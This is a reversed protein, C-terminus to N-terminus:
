SAEIDQQPEVVAEMAAWAHEAGLDLGQEQAKRSRHYALGTGAPILRGVIVNEKLGRLEDRKGMIAAETLVRTTEQFSAASIFSDTSLSAKTIGLLVNEYQAPLKGEAEMRDNEDLVESREVQEERIFRTDGSDTIVVRRLMQRVIVEIHKDNIKVGQLRYVDQVEDIIYRALESIGQLRLIDHPDAPGDVILEGKNVVQGDHVMLHKDKPILFEHATGDPETIVLRQKGKTEKGFSVTGTYEALMGADKPARAEFLEAVRPLGGTIDRTKASEQPIRALVEGVGIQQGDKVTILSGVQFTIAVAHDTGAIKVEEGNEDLLKVQPRVGKASGTTSRRKSDIVVLTSLGTVEDIQKAVTAGEEVNEFKVTGSYETVIPRTHPDWTALQVGAKVAAGDDVLLMAGYPLKHRERERGMDDAVVVEASRAIVVKEGKANSVYRMNGAFRITGGSKAEVGSAAAARSAAGGVHFTRMTLQTGPEGISQAAIVGVAEGANVMSGRGLDRGYCKACLGYRTECTLPTRVKVEDVGLGEILEVASEDLLSGAEIVTEQTDPNVVDEATVRGLIRERLPEVVEGGEILAKMAFGDRTGCDDEIVVLDQTVDVLRRTLYGSNATKLATDALGKRAGHTSIFYQLVNLGERFNTTIPTEIISGDPKAMLGRMGALQRIQAASGRAGSDAMMYISNFSEQRVTKGERNVVEESGLQEMMAKAVQDGCRGWIDVVKNYREGDTVLGSTYQQAIEKVEAEAARILDHKATPVLMDKVAISLGARTALRYGFQMLQDAFIVTARLGCRRFSANILKSIEKKKLPKDIVSFPLGAPLIESLIARGATTEYRNIKEIREGNPGLDAEKLRVTVRAHLAIQGSEYARKIEGVDTFLMGEGPVNVGERTAYYLGLVIDQSPVIIPEGNAPSLVNNSALMLTRAEMQAELSLPVHVAMQDGDFDANFAVCVLPHLQIAKGEILVPEFAQIGLRHLTPARNLLVPHERIVEELIDWVVPEQSEVMKKAQKITTALGMLELKNFIFPKFLELAMLKPLGCQHLKLQPGVTIVSRGSYDVRKGLLNQRFRGGKGKIMDALSKLPRKNAGTMAKGRRGNDLLSDVAEQLMRKENRVIIDPAKLELLRKLRNNRNIVRRYLDNLDSTAFRGGDLPVLPRLDPPLVPLVELVMWEPKIGSQQFAELVKLRKSFKKIKAESNTTELDGRLKEVELTVDLTRLLERIGEAGMVADFDDGYEEVKALYDDETLLQGRNLPTMGPEVVVFAEFYLVREIDRLTMDLVMGLRSPLSKLFWIHAVPSALEIHGMRERRVKSLTVEVGCKECIVGRHKLRKYKGCLCEYDKVPGFIKACFLGDREPKFTRYNITEPKKVEGYSWTRIKDPSALGITIADFEEENPLTQKFLDALLSKM